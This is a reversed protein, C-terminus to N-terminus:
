ALDALVDPSQSLPQNIAALVTKSERAQTAADQELHKTDQSFLDSWMEDRQGTVISKAAEVKELLAALAEDPIESPMEEALGLLEKLVPDLEKVQEAAEPPFNLAEIQKKLGTVQNLLEIREPSNPGYPPYRKVIGGLADEAVGLIGEAEALAQDSQRVEVAQDLRQDQALQARVHEGQLKAHYGYANGRQGVVAAAHSPADGPASEGRALRSAESTIAPGAAQAAM